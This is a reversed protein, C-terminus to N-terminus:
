PARAKDGDQAEDEKPRYLIVSNSRMAEGPKLDTKVKNVKTDISILFELLDGPESEFHTALICHIAKRPAIVYKTKGDTALGFHSGHRESRRKDPDRLTWFVDCLAEPAPATRTKDSDNYIYLDFEVNGEATLLLSRPALILRLEEPAALLQSGFAWLAGSIMIILATKRSGNNKEM